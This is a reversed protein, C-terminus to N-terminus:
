SLIRASETLYEFPLVPWRSHPLLSHAESLNKTFFVIENSAFSKLDLDGIVRYEKEVRWDINCDIAQFFPRAGVTLSNWLSEDGYHVRRAQLRRVAAPSFVLGYPCFDWRRLHPRYVHLRKWQSLPVATLCVVQHNGRITRSSSLLCQKSIINFLTALESHDALSHGDILLNHWSDESQQPWPADVARTWHALTGKAEIWKPVPPLELQLIPNARSRSHQSPTLTKSENFECYSVPRKRWDLLLQTKSNRQCQIVQIHHAGGIVVRDRLPLRVISAPAEEQISTSPSILCELPKVTSVGRIKQQWQSFKQCVTTSALRISHIRAYAKLFRYTTTKPCTLIVRNTKIETTLCSRFSAFWESQRYLPRALRSSVLAVSKTPPNCLSQYLYQREGIWKTITPDIWEPPTTSIIPTM